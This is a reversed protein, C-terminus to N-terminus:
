SAIPTPAASPTPSDSPPEGSPALPVAAPRELLGSLVRCETDMRDIDAGDFCVALAELEPPDDGFLRKGEGSVLCRAVLSERFLANQEEYTPLEGRRRVDFRYAQLMLGDMPLLLVTSGDALQFPKPERKRGELEARSLPRHGNAKSM